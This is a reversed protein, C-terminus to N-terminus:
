ETRFEQPLFYLSDTDTVVHCGICFEVNKSGKGSTTGVVKGNPMVLTYRWNQSAENFGARMKEMVFLPGARVRGGRLSFSDKALVAGVPLVGAEEYRTYEQAIANHYNHVFRQGHTASVYPRTSVLNWDQYSVAIALGTIESALASMGYGQKLSGKVCDYVATAEAFSLEVAAGAGCPNCPNCPNCPGCPSCPNCGGKAACPNCPNCPGCPGSAACPSCPGCPGCPNCPNCAAAKLLRPVYCDRAAGAAACPNCPGCAGCAGRATCPNCPNCERKAACPNCPSCPGCPHFAAKASCPGCPGCAAAIKSRPFTSISKPAFPNPRATPNVRAASVGSELAANSVLTQGAAQNREIARAADIVPWDTIAVGAGVAVIPIMTGSLLRNRFSM